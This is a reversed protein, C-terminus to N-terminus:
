PEGRILTGNYRNVILPVSNGDIWKEEEIEASGYSGGGFQPDSPSHGAGLFAERNFLVVGFRTRQARDKVPFGEEYVHRELGM